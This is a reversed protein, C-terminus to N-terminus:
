VSYVSVGGEGELQDWDVMQPEPYDDDEPEVPGFSLPSFGHRAIMRLDEGTARVVADNLTKQPM